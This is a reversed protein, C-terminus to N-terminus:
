ITVEYEKLLKDIDLISVVDNMYKHGSKLKEAFEKVAEKKAQELILKERSIIKDFSEKGPFASSLCIVKIEKKREEWDFM